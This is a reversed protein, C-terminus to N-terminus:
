ASSPPFPVSMRTTCVAMTITASFRCLNYTLVPFSRTSKRQAYFYVQQGIRNYALQLVKTDKVQDFSLCYDLLRARGSGFFPLLSAIHPFTPFRVGSLLRCDFCLFFAPSVLESKCCRTCETYFLGYGHEECGQHCDPACNRDIQTFFGNLITVTSQFTM